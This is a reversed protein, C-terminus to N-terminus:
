INKYENVQMFNNNIHRDNQRPCIKYKRYNIFMFVTTGDYEDRYHSCTNKYSCMQGNCRHKRSDDDSMMDDFDKTYKSKYKSVFNM